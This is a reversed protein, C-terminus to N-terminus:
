QWSICCAPTLIQCYWARASRHARRRTRYGATAQLELRKPELRARRLKCGSLDVGRAHHGLPQQGAGVDPQHQDAQNAFRVLGDQARLRHQLMWEPEEKIASIEEVTQRTLGRSTEHLYVIDDHFGYEARRDKIDPQSVM